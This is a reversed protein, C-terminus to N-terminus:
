NCTIDRDYENSYYDLWRNVRTRIRQAKTNASDLTLALNVTNASLCTESVSPRYTVQSPPGNPPDVYLLPNDAHDAMWAALDKRRPDNSALTRNLEGTLYTALKWDQNNVAEKDNAIMRAALDPTPTRTITPTSTPLPTPTRTPTNTPTPTITPTPTPLVIIQIVPTATPTPTRRGREITQEVEGRVNFNEIRDLESASALAGNWDKAEARQMVDLLQRLYDLQHDLQARVERVRPPWVTEPYQGVNQFFYTRAADADNMKLRLEASSWNVEGRLWRRFNALASDRAAIAQRVAIEIPPTGRNTEAAYQGDWLERPMTPLLTPTPPAPTATPTPALHAFGPVGALWAFGQSYTSLIATAFYIIMLFTLVLFATAALRHRLLFVFWEGIGRALNIPWRLPPPLLETVPRGIRQAYQQLAYISLLILGILAIKLSLPLAGAGRWLNNVFTSLPSLLADWMPVLADNLAWLMDVLPKAQPLSLMFSGIGLIILAISVALLWIRSM